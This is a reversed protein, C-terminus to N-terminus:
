IGWDIDELKTNNTEAENSIMRISDIWKYQESYTEDVRPNNLQWEISYKGKIIEGAKSKINAIRNEELFKDLNALEESTLVKRKSKQENLVILNDSSLKTGLENCRQKLLDIYKDSDGFSECHIEKNNEDIWTVELWNTLNDLKIEKIKNM